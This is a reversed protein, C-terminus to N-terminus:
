KNVKAPQNSISLDLTLTGATKEQDVSEQLIGPNGVAEYILVLIDDPFDLIQMQETFFRRPNPPTQNSSQM